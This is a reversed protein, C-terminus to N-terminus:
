AGSTGRATHYNILLSYIVGYVNFDVLFGERRRRSGDEEFRSAIKGSNKARKSKSM